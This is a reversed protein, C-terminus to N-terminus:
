FVGLLKAILRFFSLFISVITTFVFYYLICTLLYILTDSVFQMFPDQQGFPDSDFDDFDFQKFLDDLNVYTSQFGHHHAGQHGQSSTYRQHGM